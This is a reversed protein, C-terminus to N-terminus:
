REDLPNTGGRYVKVVLDSAPFVQVGSEVVIRLQDGPLCIQFLRGFTVGQSLADERNVCL